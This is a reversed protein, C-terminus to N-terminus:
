GDIQPGRGQQLLGAVHEAWLTYAPAGPHFGDSAIMEGPQPQGQQPYPIHVFVCDPEAGAVAALVQNCQKARVGLWWRLPQPLAPFLHMPPLSSLYVQRVGFKQRLTQVIRQLSVAWSRLGTLATVDNVGISVLATDFSAAPAEQLSQLLQAARDGSRALLKWRLRHSPSLAQVLQGSLAQAQLAVGVGAAASDGAILLSLGPGEGAEGERPGDAEPLRPTVRRVHRGQLLFLPGMLATALYFRM